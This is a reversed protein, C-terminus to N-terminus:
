YIKLLNCDSLNNNTLGEMVRIGKAYGKGLSLTLHHLYFWFISRIEQLFILYLYVLFSKLASNEMRLRSSIFYLTAPPIATFREPISLAVASRSM